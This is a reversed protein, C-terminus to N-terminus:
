RRVAAVVVDGRGGSAHVNRLEAGGGGTVRVATGDAARVETDRLVLTGGGVFVADAAVGASRIGGAVRMGAVEGHVDVAAVEDGSTALEGGVEVAGVRGGPQVSLAHASLRVIAGRVLSDGAGGATKIGNHITIRGVPQGIQIGIAADGYTTIRDFEAEGVTPGTFGDLRYVNFGRAGVGHTEIPSQIRLATISGFNVMGVGSRGYSTLPAEATWRDVEGWNDLVMDNVGYTTVPGAALVERAHVGYGVFVGGSITDATGEPIGGDTFVPGTVLAGVEVRGGDPGAGFVFVGSGRVPAGTTGARVGRLEATLLAAPDDQRNWLTFAGPLVGVGLLAPRAAADRTDAAVVDLGDVEVHGRRVRDEAVIRVQGVATVGALRLTGLDDVGTDNHIARRGPEVEIRLGSVENDRTLRIGDVGPAFALVRGEGALRQGPALTLAPLGGIDGRVVIRRAGTAALLDERSKVVM